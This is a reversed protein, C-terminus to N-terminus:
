SQIQYPENDTRTAPTELSYNTYIPNLASQRLLLKIIKQKNTVQVNKKNKENHRTKRSSYM